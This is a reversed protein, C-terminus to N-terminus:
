VLALVAEMLTTKGAASTSQVIVALPTDLKRSVCALYGMMKNTREGVVAVADAIRELLQPDRLLALATDREAASMEPLTDKPKHTAQQRADQVEEIKLLVRGLDRKVVAEEVHLETAAQEQFSKRHKASYLD